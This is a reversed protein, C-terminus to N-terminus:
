VVLNPIPMGVLNIYVTLDQAMISNAASRAFECRIVSQHGPGLVHVPQQCNSQNGIALRNSNSAASTSATWVVQVRGIAAAVRDISNVSSHGAVFCARKSSPRRRYGFTDPCAPADRHARTASNTPSPSVGRLQLSYKSKTM